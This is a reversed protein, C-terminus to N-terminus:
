ITDGGAAPPQENQAPADDPRDKDPETAPPFTAGAPEVVLPGTARGTPAEDSSDDSASNVDESISNSNSASAASSSGTSNSSSSGGAVSSSGMSSDGSSMSM